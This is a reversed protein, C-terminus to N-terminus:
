PYPTCSSPGPQKTLITAPGEPSERYRSVLFPDREGGWDIANTSLNGLATMLDIVVALRNGVVTSRRNATRRIPPREGGRLPPVTAFM